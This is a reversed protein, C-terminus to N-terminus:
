IYSSVEICIDLFHTLIFHKLFTMGDKSYPTTPIVKILCYKTQAPIKMPQKHCICVLFDLETTLFTGSDNYAKLMTQRSSPKFHIEDLLGAGTSNNSSSKRPISEYFMLDSTDDRCDIFHCLTVKIAKKFTIGGSSIWVIPSVPQVDGEFTFPGNLTIGVEIRVPDVKHPVADKPFHLIVDDGATSKCFGGPSSCQYIGVDQIFPVGALSSQEIERQQKTQLHPLYETITSMDTEQDDSTHRLLSQLM